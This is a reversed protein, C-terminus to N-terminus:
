NEKMMKELYGDRVGCKVVYIGDSAFIDCITRLIAVGSIVTDAYSKVIKAYIDYMREPERDSFKCLRDLMEVSLFRDECATNTLVSFIKLAARASGGMAYLYRVGFLNKEDMLLNRIYFDMKKREEATPLINEAFKRRLRNSGIDYSEASILRSQEFQVIQCSGGGLDTGIASCEAINARLATFDCEAEDAGSLIDIDIGTTERVIAKVEEKNKLDRMSSTAFCGIKECEASRLIQVLKNIVVILRNIGNESLCGDATEQLIHSRVLKDETKEGKREYAVGRITNTGIDIIGYRM